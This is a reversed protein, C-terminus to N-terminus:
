KAVVLKKVAVFNGAVLKYLYVGSPVDSADWTVSYEGAAKVENVFTAVEQGLVDFVKLSVLQSNAIPLQYKIITKPNFPNPYNQELSFSTPTGREGVSTPLSVRIPDFYHVTGDLDIQKLRYFPLSASANTHTFQYSRPEITTGNGPVFSNPITEFAGSQQASREVEFGFNNIESITRWELLVRSGGLARGTFSALQIPVSATITFNVNSIDFFINGVAEVKIRGTTTQNDPVTITQSGDNPTSALIVIPFTTGGDTSLSIKVNACNVPASNTGSVNWTVTQDTLAEWSVATNPATVTFPGAAGDVTFQVISSRDVGGGGSRNDRATLRFTLTRAYSPLIEGITQTDNLLDSLKPFTRTPSTTPNFSRFIPANGSPTNPNGAPGLDFEEWCYTLADGNADTASGTLAFPTSRPITFGGAPVTIVPANNGTNTTVACSNGGGSNTYAVMEDFSITHFYADSNPQLDHSGCIGAYAQITSGSGPEYATAANRNGGSCSGANSNFTHNGGFQHGMEHAVYDIYFPDGIPNTLGTVGEAKSGGVCVVGLGAIGGGGTSFVHGIDYNASGIVGDLTSQNQSLMAFGDDNTYPDTAGNTYVLSSNNAVLTMRVAIETEYVGNIRNVATVIAALGLPVTGGHYQTYEGTAACALRYTRLQPGTPTLPSMAVLQRLEEIRQPTAVLNCSMHPASFERERMVGNRGYCVYHLVDGQNHPDIFYTASPAFVMARVGARTIDLRVRAAPNDLGQGHYTRIDPFQGALPAEMMSYEVVTFRQFAGDPTPISLVLPTSGATREMPATRLLSQMAAFDLALTRHPQPFNYMEGVPVFQRESVDSWLHETQSFTQAAVILIATLIGVRRITSFM